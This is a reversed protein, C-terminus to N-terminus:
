GFKFSWLFKISFSRTQMRSRPCVESAVRTSCPISFLVAYIMCRDEFRSSSFNQGLQRSEPQMVRDLALDQEPMVKRLRGPSKRRALASEGDQRFTRVTRYFTALACGLGQAM